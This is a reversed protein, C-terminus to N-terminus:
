KFQSKSIHFELSKLVNDIAQKIGSQINKNENMVFQYLKSFVTNTTNRELDQGRQDVIKQIWSIIMEMQVDNKLIRILRLILNQILIGDIKKVQSGNRTLFSFFSISNNKALVEQLEENVDKLQTKSIQLNSRRISQSL